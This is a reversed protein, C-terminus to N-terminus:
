RSNAVRVRAVLDPIEVVRLDRDVGDRVRERRGNNGYVANQCQDSQTRTAALVLVDALPVGKVRLTGRRLRPCGM